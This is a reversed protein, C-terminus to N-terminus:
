LVASLARPFKRPETFGGADEGFMLRVGNAGIALYFHEDENFHGFLLQM